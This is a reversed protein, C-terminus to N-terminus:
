LININTIEHKKEDKFNITGTEIQLKKNTGDIDLQISIDIDIDIMDYICVPKLFVYYFILASFIVPFIPKLNQPTVGIIIKAIFYYVAPVLVLKGMFNFNKKSCTYTRMVQIFGFTMAYCIILTDYM